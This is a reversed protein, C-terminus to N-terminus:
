IFPVHIKIKQIENEFIFSSPSKMIEKVELNPNTVLAQPSQVDKEKSSTSVPKVYDEAKTPKYSTDTNEEKKKSRLNYRNPSKKNEGKSIENIQNDVLSKEYAFQNLHPSSSTDGLYHIEPDIEEEEGEEDVILNNQLPDQVKQDDRERNRPDRPLIQPANNPRRYNGRNCTNQTNRCNQKGELKQKEMETSLSKVLKTLEDVQPHVVSSDSTSAEVRNKRNDRDSKGRLKDAAVINSEVELAADQMHALYTSKRERLLLFFAPDFASVYTIKAFTETPKIETPIKNYM